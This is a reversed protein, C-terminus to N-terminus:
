RVTVDKASARKPMNYFAPQVWIQLVRVWFKSIFCGIVGTKLIERGWRFYSFNFM